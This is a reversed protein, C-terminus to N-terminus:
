ANNGVGSLKGAAFHTFFLSFAQYSLLFLSYLAVSSVRLFVFLFSSPVCLYRCTQVCPFKEGQCFLKM